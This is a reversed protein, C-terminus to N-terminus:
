RGFSKMWARSQWAPGTWMVFAFAICLELIPLAIMAPASAPKKERKEVGRQGRLNKGSQLAPKNRGIPNPTAAIKSSQFRPSLSCPPLPPTSHLPSQLLTVCHRSILQCEGRDAAVNSNSDSLFDKANETDRDGNLAVGPRGGPQSLILILPSPASPSYQSCCRPLKFPCRSCLNM